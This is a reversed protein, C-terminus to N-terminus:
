IGNWILEHSAVKFKQASSCQSRKSIFPFCVWVFGVASDGALLKLKAPFAPSAPAPKGLPEPQSAYGWLSRGAWEPDKRWKALSGTRSGMECQSQGWMLVTWMVSRAIFCKRKAWTIKRPAPLQILRRCPGALLLPTWLLATRQSWGAAEDAWQMRDSWVQEVPLFPLVAKNKM